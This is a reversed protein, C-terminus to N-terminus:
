DGLLKGVPQLGEVRDCTSKVIMMMPVALFLGWVGWMWSGFLLGVFIAVMNMQGIRGMLTPTLFWGELTTVLLALGGVVAAMGITQFQIFAVVALGGTVILPGFYPVSNLVGAAVGWVGAQELGVAWVALWTATAVVVSAFLQVLLFREMQGAIENLVQLTIKKRTLTPGIEVLKRKFLDDAVLLFFTLFVIMVLQGIVGMVRVSGWWVYDRARFPTEAVEVKLKAAESPQAKQGEADEATRALEDATRQITELTGAQASGLPRMARRLDQAAEPLRQVVRNVDDVLSVVQVGTSGLLVGLAVVAGLPRPVKRRQLWDVLPDLAYFLLGSLILPILVDQMYRALVVAAAFAIVTLSVGRVDTPLQVQSPDQGPPAPADPTGASRDMGSGM